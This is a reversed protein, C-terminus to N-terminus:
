NANYCGNPIGRGPNTALTSPLLASVGYPSVVFAPPTDDTFSKADAPLNGSWTARGETGSVGSAAILIKYNLWTAVNKPYEIQVVATGNASTTSAGVFSVAVDSKRPDLQGNGNIDESIGSITELVGNRNVDENPCTPGTFGISGAVPTPNALSPSSRNWNGKGDYYGKLYSVLDISASLQINAKAQGSSDVVLVVYKKIYTLGGTGETITNDTGITVGLAESIVTLTTQVAAPCTGAAFDTASYCARVVVGDTPSARTGPIYATTAVGNADSYVLNSATSLSGGISNPDPLDFRVRMNKMSANGVGLFLARIESRNASSTASNVAIVSPNASISGSQLTGVAAPIAGATTSQVLVTSVAKVGAASATFDISGSTAPATYLYTFAGNGDTKGAVDAIGPASVTIAQDAMAASNVDLVRYQISNMPSSPAVVAAGLTSNIQTGTVQFSGTRTIDGSTATVTVIRNSRDAGIAVTATVTGDAGTTKGVVQAVANGDFSLTVPVGTLTNRSADVATATVAVTQSGSNNVNTTSLKLNLDSAAVTVTSGGTVTGTGTGTTTGSGSGFVSTGADGGGGGCGGLAAVM